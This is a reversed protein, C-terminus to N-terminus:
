AKAGAAEANTIFQDLYKQRNNIVEDKAAAIQKRLAEFDYDAFAKARSILYADGFRHLAEQLKPTALAQDIRKKYEQTRAKM